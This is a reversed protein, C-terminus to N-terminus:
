EAHIMQSRSVTPAKLWKHGFEDYRESRFILVVGHSLVLWKEPEWEIERVIGVQHALMVAEIFSIPIEKARGVLREYKSRWVSNGQKDKAPDDLWASIQQNTM